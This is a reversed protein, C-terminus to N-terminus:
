VYVCLTYGAELEGFVILLSLNLAVITAIILTAM